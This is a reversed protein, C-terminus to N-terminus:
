INVFSESLSLLPLNHRWSRRSTTLDSRIPNEWLTHTHTVPLSSHRCAACLLQGGSGRGCYVISLPDDECRLEGQQRCCGILPALCYYVLNGGLRVPRTVPEQWILWSCFITMKCRWWTCKASKCLLYTYYLRNLGNDFESTHWGRQTNLSYPSILETLFM